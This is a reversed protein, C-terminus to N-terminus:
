KPRFNGSAPNRKWRYWCLLLLGFLCLGISISFRFQGWQYRDIQERYCNGAIKLEKEWIDLQKSGPEPVPVSYLSDNIGAFIIQGFSGDPSELEFEKGENASVPFDFRVPAQCGAETFLFLNGSRSSYNTIKLKVPRSYPTIVSFLIILILLLSYFLSFGGFIWSRYGKLFFVLVLMLLFICCVSYFLLDVTM